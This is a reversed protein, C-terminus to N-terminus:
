LFIADIGHNFPNRLVIRDPTLENKEGNGGKKYVTCIIEEKQRNIIINTIRKVDFIDNVIFEIEEKTLDTINKM